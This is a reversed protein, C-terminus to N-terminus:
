RCGALEGQKDRGLRVDGWGRGPRDARPPLAARKAALGGRGVPSAEGAPGQSCLIDFSRLM